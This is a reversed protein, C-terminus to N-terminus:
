PVVGGLLDAVADILVGFRISPIVGEWALWLLLALAIVVALGGTKAASLGVGKATGAIAHLKIGWWLYMGVSLIAGAGILSSLGVQALAWEVVSSAIEGGILFM